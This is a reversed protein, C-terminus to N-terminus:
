IVGSSLNGMGMNVGTEPTSGDGAGWKGLGREEPSLRGKCGKGWVGRFRGRCGIGWAGQRRPQVPGQV